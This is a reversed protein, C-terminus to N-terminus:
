DWWYETDVDAWATPDLGDLDYDDEDVMGYGPASPDFGDLAYEDEDVMGYGPASPDFGDLAYEDEDVMGYGPASPDFGDLAYNDEDVMGYGPASPDFGDLAYNDEDVMGYGPASPDFGDLSYNDPDVWGWGSNDYVEPIYTNVNWSEELNGYRDYNEVTGNANQISFSGDTYRVYMNGKEDTYTYTNSDPDYTEESGNDNLTRRFVEKGYQDYTRTDQGNFIEYSGDNFFTTVNGNRSIYSWTGDDNELWRDNESATSPDAWAGPTTYRTSTGNKETYIYTNDRFVTLSSGDSFYMTYSGDSNYVIYYDLGYYYSYSTSTTTSGSVYLYASGTRATQTGSYFTCYVSWGNMDTSVNAVTLTTSGAGSVKAYPFMKVFGDANYEGGQPSVFTWNLSTWTSANAVFYATGGVAPSENTPNKTITLFGGNQANVPQATKSSPQMLGKFVAYSNFLANQSTVAEADVWEFNTSSKILQVPGETGANNYQEGTIANGSNDMYATNVIGGAAQNHQIALQQFSLGDDALKVACKAYYAEDASFVINDYFMYIWTNSAQNYFTDASDTVIDPFSEDEPIVVQIPNVSNLDAGMEWATVYTYRGEGQVSAALLELLGNHNLDTVAYSWKVGASEPQKFTNFNNFLYQIQANATEDSARVPTAAATQAKPEPATQASSEEAFSAVSLSLIMVLMLVISITKKM